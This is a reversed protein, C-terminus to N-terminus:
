PKVPAVVLSVWKGDVLRERLSLGTESMAHVVEEEQELLIGSLIARGSPALRSALSPALTVLVGSILNAAILDFSGSLKSIDGGILDIDVAANLKLNRRAAEIAEPDNDVATIHRYGLLCAAIALLGTGTGLDLFRAERMAPRAHKEMLQLCSRTTEHHGTGFAMGPDIIINIKGPKKEEWPPLITFREGIDLPRFGAKWTSNWDQGPILEYTATIVIDPMAQRFAARVEGLVRDIAARDAPEEFYAILQEDLDISGLFGLEMLRSSLADKAIEPLKITAQLYRM